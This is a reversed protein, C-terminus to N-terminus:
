FGTSKKAIVRQIEESIIKAGFPSWHTDDYYYLDKQLNLQKTLVSKSDIFLYDKKLSTFLEFFAPKEYNAPNLFHSYYLDYKDPCVLVILQINKKALAIAIKNLESNAKSLKTTDKNEILASLDNDLFLINDPAGSFLNQTKSKVRYTRSGIPHDFFHYLLNIFPAKVTTSSFFANELNAQQPKFNIIESQLEKFDLKSSFDLSQCRNVFVREVSELIIYDFQYTDFFDGNILDILKQVPNQKFTFNNIHLVSLGNTAMLNNYGLSDQESFSDGITLVNYSKKKAASLESITTYKLPINLKFRESSKPSPNAYFYGLRTLEGENQDYFLVNLFHMIVFPLVFLSTKLLLKKM